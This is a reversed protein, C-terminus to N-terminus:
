SFAWVKEHPKPTKKNQKCKQKELVASLSQKEPNITEIITNDYAKEFFLLGGTGVLM